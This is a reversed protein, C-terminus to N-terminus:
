DLAQGRAADVPQRLPPRVHDRRAIRRRPGADHGGPMGVRLPDKVYAPRLPHVDAGDAGQADVRVAEVGVLVDVAEQGGVVGGSWAGGLRGRRPKRGTRPRAASMAHVSTAAAPHAPPPLPLEPGDTWEVGAGAEVVGGALLGGGAVPVPPRRRAGITTTKM